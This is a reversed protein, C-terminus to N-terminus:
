YSPISHSSIKKGLFWFPKFSSKKEKHHNVAESSMDLGLCAKPTSCESSDDKIRELIQLLESTTGKVRSNGNLSLFVLSQIITEIMVLRCCEAGEQCLSLLVDAAHVQEEERGSELLTGIASICSSTEAVAIRVEQTACLNKIIKICFQALKHDGLFPVLKPICDLYVIHYGIDGNHSLNYLIKMATRHLARFQTNLVKLISPLVGSAVMMSKYNPQYSLVEMIALAEGTIDSDLYSALVYIGDEDFSPIESRNENLIALLVEAGDRQAKVDSSEQADKLFKILPKICSISIANRCAQNNDQLQDKVDGVTKCQSGWSLSSLRSLSALMNDYCDASHHFGQSEANMQSPRHGFSEDSKDDSMESGYNTVSSCLSVSSIQLCLQNMSSGFSAISNSSQSKLSSLSAFHAELCPDPITLGLESSWKSILGKMASNPTLYLNDLKMHTVPCTKNGENFWKEIWFREFTKGSAIIVPDYMLRMSIPCKFEAPLEPAGSDNARTEDLANEAHQEPEISQYSSKDHQVVTSVNWGQGIIEGYKSLLYFLFKLIKEKIPDKGSVTDLLRRISRKELLVAAPSTIKLKLAALQIAELELVSRSESIDQRLLALVVKGAEEEASELPFKASRLDHIIGSIKAALLTPVTSQIQSLCLQLANQIKECRLVIREATIALYLKSSESCLQILAKAKDMTDQLSCLAQIGTKCRPRASEISSFIETIRDIFKKLELCMLRHVKIKCYYTLEVIEAGNNEM